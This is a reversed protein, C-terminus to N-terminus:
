FFGTLTSILDTFMTYGMVPFLFMLITYTHGTHILVVAYRYIGWLLFATGKPM